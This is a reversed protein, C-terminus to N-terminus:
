SINVEKHWSQQYYFIESCLFHLKRNHIEETFTVLDAPVQLFGYHFVENKHLAEYWQVREFKM